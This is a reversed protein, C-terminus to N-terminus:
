APSTSGTAPSAVAAGAEPEGPATEEPQSYGAVILKLALSANELLGDFGRGDIWRRVLRGAENPTMGGGILGQLIPERVDDVNLSGVGAAALQLVTAKPMTHLAQVSQALRHAVEGPGAGCVTQIQRLEAVLVRFTRVEGGFEDEIPGVGSM